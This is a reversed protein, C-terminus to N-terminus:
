FPYALGAGGNYLTTVDGSSLASDTVMVEDLFGDLGSGSSNYANGLYWYSDGEYISGALTEASTSVDAGNIYLKLAAAGNAVAVIHYWTDASLAGSSEVQYDTGATNKVHFYVKNDTGVTIYIAEYPSGSIGQRILYSEHTLTSPLNDLNVWLSIGVSQDDITQSANYPVEAVDEEEHFDVSRGLKGVQNVTANTTANQKGTADTLTTGSVEDLAFYMLVSDLLSSEGGSPSYWTENVPDVAKIRVRDNTAFAPRVTITGTTANFRYGTLGNTATTNRWQPILNEDTGREVVISKGILRTDTYITDTNDPEGDSVDVIFQINITNYGSGSGTFDDLALDILSDIDVGEDVRTQISDGILAQTQAETYINALSDRVMQNTDQQAVWNANQYIWAQRLTTGTGDNATTGVNVVAFGRDSKVPIQKKQCSIIALITFLIIIRKM